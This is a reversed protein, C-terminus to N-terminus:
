LDISTQVQLNTLGAVRPNDEPTIRIKVEVIRRDLNEGPQNAFVNQRNVQLGIQSVTGKVEGQFAQGTVKATQGLKIKAIDSQYVEAVAVMQSTQALSAIGEDSIKEGPRTHIKLIQGSLPARIYSQELETEARKLNAIANDVETQAAQVDVPRV